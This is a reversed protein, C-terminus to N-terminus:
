QWDVNDLIIKEISGVSLIIKKENDGPTILEISSDRQMHYGVHAKGSKEIVCAIRGYRVLFDSIKEKPYTRRKDRCIRYGHQYKKEFSDSVRSEDNEVARISGYLGMLQFSLGILLVSRCGLFDGAFNQWRM